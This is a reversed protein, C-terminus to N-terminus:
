PRQAAGESWRAASEVDARDADNTLAAVARVCADRSRLAAVARVDRGGVDHLAALLDQLVLQVEVISAGDRAIPRFVDEFLDDTRLAPVHVRACIAAQEQAAPARWLSLVRAASTMVTIATGPDNVAPSLARSAIEGLVILGFRPDQEYTRAEGILFAEAWAADQAADGGEVFVLPRGPHAFTGPLRAVYVQAGQAEAMEQLAAVDLHQVYGFAGAFVPRAGAPPARDHWPAGGLHPAKVRARMAASAAETVFAVTTQVFGIKSLHQIWRILAVVIIVTVAITVVFLVARGSAGYAGLSLAIVGVMGYIFAGLFIALVNQTTPDAVVLQTARPTGSSGTASFASVMVGLSFTVVSLMSSALLTLVANVVEASLRRELAAPAEFPAFVAFLAVGVAIAAYSAVRVWLQRWLRLLLWVTRNMM